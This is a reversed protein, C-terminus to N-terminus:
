RARQFPTISPEAANEAPSHVVQPPPPDCSKTDEKAVTQVTETGEGSFPAKATSGKKEVGTYCGGGITGAMFM